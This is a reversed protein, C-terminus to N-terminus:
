DLAGWADDYEMIEGTEMDILPPMDRYGGYYEDYNEYNEYYAYETDDDSEHWHPNAAAHEVNAANTIHHNTNSSNAATAAATATNTHFSPVVLPADEVQYLAYWNIPIEVVDHDHYTKRSVWGQEIWSAVMHNMRQRILEYEKSSLFAGRHVRHMLVHWECYKTYFTPYGVVSVHPAVVWDEIITTDYYSRLVDQFGRAPMRFLTSDATNM